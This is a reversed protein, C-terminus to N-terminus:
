KYDAHCEVCTNELKKCAELIAESDKKRAAVALEVSADRMVVSQETWVKADPKKEGKNEGKPYGAPGRVRTIEGIVAVRYALLELEKSVKAANADTLKKDAMAYIMAEIGNANKIKASYHLDPHLGEGKKAKTEFLTMLPKLEGITKPWDKPEEFVNPSDLKDKALTGALIAVIKAKDKKALQTANALNVAESGLGRLKADASTTRSTGALILAEARLVEYVDDAEAKAREGIRVQSRKALEKGVETPLFEKWVSGNDGGAQSSTAALALLVSFAVGAIMRSLSRIM